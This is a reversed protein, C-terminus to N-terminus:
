RNGGSHFDRTTLATLDRNALSAWRRAADLYRARLVARSEESTAAWACLAAILRTQTVTDDTGAAALLAAAKWADRTTGARERTRTASPQTTMQEIHGALLHGTTSPTMLALLCEAARAADGFLTALHASWDDEPLLWNVIHTSMVDLFVRTAQGLHQYAHDRDAQNLAQEARELAPETACHWATTRAILDAVYDDHRLLTHWQTLLRHHDDEDIDVIGPRRLRGYPEPVNMLTSPWALLSRTYLDWELLSATPRTREYDCTLMHNWVPEMLHEKTDTEV